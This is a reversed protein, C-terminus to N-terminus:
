TIGGVLQVGGWGFLVLISAVELAAETFAVVIPCVMQDAM